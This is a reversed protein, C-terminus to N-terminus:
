VKRTTDDYKEEYFGYLIYSGQIKLLGAYKQEITPKFLAMFRAQMGEVEILSCGVSPIVKTIKKFTLKCFTKKVYQFIKGHADIFWLNPKAVKILDSLFYLALRLPHLNFGDIHLKLRRGALSKAPLNKDDIVKLVEKDKYIKLYCLVGDLENPKTGLKYVPWAIESLKM